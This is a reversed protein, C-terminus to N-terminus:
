LALIRRTEGTKKNIQNIKYCDSKHREKVGTWLVDLNHQANEMRVGNCKRTEFTGTRSKRFGNKLYMM